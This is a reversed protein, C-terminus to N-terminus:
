QRKKIVRAPLGVAVSFAPIDSNVVSGTGIITDREIKVGDQVKVGAGLLCNKEIAIGRVVQGQGIIPIDIRNSNHDGGGIIYCYASILVNKGIKVDKASQVFCNMAINSNDGIIIDGNKCSLVTHRGIMVDNGIIIGANDNGKADLVAYDDFIVNDGIRIKQPHRITM